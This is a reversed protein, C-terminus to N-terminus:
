SNAIKLQQLTTPDAHGSAKIGHKQQFDKLATMTKRGWAGDVAVKEGNNNLATQIAEVRDKSMAAHKAAAKHTAPVQTPTAAPAVAAAAPAATTTTAPAPSAAFASTTMLAAIVAAAALGATKNM